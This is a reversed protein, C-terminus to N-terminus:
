IRAQIIQKKEQKPIMIDTKCAYIGFEEYGTITLSLTYDGINLSTRCHTFKLQFELMTKM